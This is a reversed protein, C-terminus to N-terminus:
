RWLHRNQAPDPSCGPAFRAYLVFIIKGAKGGRAPNCDKLDTVRVGFGALRSDFIEIRQGPPAPTLAKLFRGTILKRDAM